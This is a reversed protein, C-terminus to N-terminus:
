PTTTLRRMVQGRYWRCTLPIVGCSTLTLVVSSSEPVAKIASTILGYGADTLHVKGTVIYTDALENGVFPSYVDALGAGFAAADAALISNLVPITQGAVM